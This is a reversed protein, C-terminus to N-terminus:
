GAPALQDLQVVFRQSTRWSTSTVFVSPKGELKDFEVTVRDLDM